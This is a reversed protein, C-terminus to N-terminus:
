VATSGIVKYYVDHGSFLGFTNHVYNQCMKISRQSKQCALNCFYQWVVLAVITNSCNYDRYIIIVKVELVTVFTLLSQKM